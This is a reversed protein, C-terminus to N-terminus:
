TYPTNKPIEGVGEPLEGRLIHVAGEIHGTVCEGRSRVDRLFVDARGRMDELERVAIQQVHAQNLAAEIWSRM